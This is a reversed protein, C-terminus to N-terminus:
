SKQWIESNNNMNKSECSAIISYYFNLMLVDFLALALLIIYPVVYYSGHSFMFTVVTYKVICSMFLVVEYILLYMIRKWFSCVISLMLAYMLIPLGLLLLMSTMALSLCVSYSEDMFWEPLICFMVAFVFAPSLLVEFLVITSLRLCKIRPLVIGVALTVALIIITHLRSPIDIQMFYFFIDKKFMQSSTVTDPILPGILAKTIKVVALSIESLYTFKLGFIITVFVGTFIIGIVMSSSLKLIRESRPIKYMDDSM